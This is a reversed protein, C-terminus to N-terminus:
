PHSFTNVQLMTKWMKNLSQTVQSYSCDPRCPLNVSRKLEKSKDTMRYYKLLVTGPLMMVYMVSETYLVLSQFHAFEDVRTM